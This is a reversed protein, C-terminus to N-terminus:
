PLMTPSLLNCTQSCEEIGKGVVRTVAYEHKIVVVDDFCLGDVFGQSIQELAQRLLYMKDNRARAPDDRSGMAM